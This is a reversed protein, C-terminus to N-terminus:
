GCLRTLIGAGKLFSYGQDAVLMNLVSILESQRVDDFAHIKINRRLQELLVGSVAGIDDRQHALWTDFVQTSTSAM